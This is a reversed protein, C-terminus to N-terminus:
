ILLKDPELELLKAADRPPRKNATALSTAKPDLIVRVGNQKGSDLCAEVLQLDALAESPTNRRADSNHQVSELFAMMETELGGFPIDHKYKSNSTEVDLTYGPGDTKRQLVM